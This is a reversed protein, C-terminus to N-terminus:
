ISCPKREKLLVPNNEIEMCSVQCYMVGEISPLVEGRRAAGSWALCRRDVMFLLMPQVAQVQVAANAAVNKWAWAM